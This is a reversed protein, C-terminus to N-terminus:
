VPLKLSEGRLFFSNITKQKLDFIVAILVFLYEIFVLFLNEEVLGTERYSWYSLFVVGGWVIPFVYGTFVSFGIFYVIYWPHVISAVSFYILLVWSMNKMLSPLNVTATKNNFTIILMALLTVFPTVSGIAGIQNYGTFLAGIWRFVYYISANFEFTNFYLQISKFFTNSLDVGMFPAFFLLCSLILTTLFVLSKKVGIKYLLLPLFLIPILKLCIAVSYVIASLVYKNVILLYFSIILCTFTIGEFHLNGTLELVVLPNLIYIM